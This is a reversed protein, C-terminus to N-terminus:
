FLLGTMINMKLNLNFIILVHEKLITYLNYRNVQIKLFGHATLIKPFKDSKKKAPILINCQM